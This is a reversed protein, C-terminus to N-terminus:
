YSAEYYYFNGCINEIYCQNDGDPEQWFMGDGSPVFSDISVHVCWIATIDNDPTYFFGVYATQSAMGAGGCSFDVVDEDADIEKIFGQNEFASFDGEEIAKRLEAENATVFEIVEDKEARDDDSQTALYLFFAGGLLQSCGTLSFSLFITLFLYLLKKM